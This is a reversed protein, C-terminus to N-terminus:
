HFFFPAGGPFRILKDFFNWGARALSIQAPLYVQEGQITPAGDM